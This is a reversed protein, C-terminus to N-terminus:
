LKIQSKSLQKPISRRYFLMTELLKCLHRYCTLAFRIEDHEIKRVIKGRQARDSESFPRAFSFHLRSGARDLFLM